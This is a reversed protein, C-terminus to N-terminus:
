CGWSVVCGSTVFMGKYTRVEGQKAQTNPPLFAEAHVGVM